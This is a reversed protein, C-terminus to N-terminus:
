LDPLPTGEFLWRTIPFKFEDRTLYEFLGCIHMREAKVATVCLEVPM